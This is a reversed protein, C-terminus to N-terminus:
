AHPAANMARSRQTAHARSARGAEDRAWPDGEFRAGIGYTALAV